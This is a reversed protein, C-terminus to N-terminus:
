DIPLSTTVTVPLDKMSYWDVTASLTNVSTIQDALAWKVNNFPLAVTIRFHDLRTANTPDTATPNTVNQYTLQYGTMNTIGPEANQIYTQVNTQITSLSDSGTSAQRAGERAANYLVQQVEIMRGVEWIGLLMLVVLPLVVAFEVAAVGPRRKDESRVASFPTTLM